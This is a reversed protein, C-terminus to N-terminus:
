SKDPLLKRTAPAVSVLQLPAPMDDVVTVNTATRTGVSRVTFTYAFDTNLRVPESPGVKTITVDSVGPPEVPAQM